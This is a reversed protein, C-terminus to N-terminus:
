DKHLFCVYLSILNQSVFFLFSMRIKLYIHIHAFYTTKNCHLTFRRIIYYNFRSISGEPAGSGMGPQHQRLM